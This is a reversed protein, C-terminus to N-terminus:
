RKRPNSRETAFRQIEAAFDRADPTGAQAPQRSKSLRHVSKVPTQRALTSAGALAPLYERLRARARSIRAKVTGVPSDAIAAIEEMSYGMHYALELILRQENPLRNLGHTLWDQVETALVPDITQPPDDDLDRVDCHNKQRRQSNLATRYAIAFIWTSVHSANRFNTASKWVAMFTDNIIEEINEYRPTVRAVFCALRRHYKLYLAELARANSNAVAFLLDDDDDIPSHKAPLKTPVVAVERYLRTRESSGSYSADAMTM